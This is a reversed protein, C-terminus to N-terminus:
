SSIEPRCFSSVYELRMGMSAVGDVACMNMMLGCQAEAQAVQERGM